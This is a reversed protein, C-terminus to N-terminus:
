VEIETGDASVKIEVDPLEAILKALSEERYPAVHNFVVRRAGIAVIMPRLMIPDPHAAELVLLDPTKGESLAATFADVDRVNFDGSFFVRRGEAEVVYAFADKIHTTPMASVRVAGDDCFLGERVQGFTTKSEHNLATNWEAMIRGADARPLYVVPDGNFYWNFLDTFEFLGATHDVHMHTIFVAKIAEAPIASEVVHNMVQCGMDIFYYNGATEIMTCSLQRGPRPVGDATGIFTIKM